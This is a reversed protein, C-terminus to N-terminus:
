AFQFGMKQIAKHIKKKFIKVEDLSEGGTVLDDIYMDNETVEIIKTHM